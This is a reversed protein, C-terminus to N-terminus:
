WTSSLKSFVSCLSLITKTTLMKMRYLCSTFMQWFCQTTPHGKSLTIFDGAVELPTKRSCKLDSIPSLYKTIPRFCPFSASFYCRLNRIISFFEDTNEHISARWLLRLYTQFLNWFWPIPSSNLYPTLSTFVLHCDRGFIKREVLLARCFLEYFDVFYSGLPSTVLVYTSEQPSLTKIFM